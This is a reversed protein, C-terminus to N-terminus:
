WCCRQKARQHCEARARCIGVFEEFDVANHRNNSYLGMMCAIAWMLMHRYDRQLETEDNIGEDALLLWSCTISLTHRARGGADTGICSDSIKWHVEALMMVLFSQSFITEFQEPMPNGLSLPMMTSSSDNRDVVTTRLIVNPSRRHNSPSLPMRATPSWASKPPWHHIEHIRHILSLTEKELYPGERYVRRAPRFNAM